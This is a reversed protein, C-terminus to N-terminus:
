FTARSGDAPQRRRVLVTALAGTHDYITDVALAVQFATSSAPDVRDRFQRRTAM